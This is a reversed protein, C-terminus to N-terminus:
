DEKYEESLLKKHFDVQGELTGQKHKSLIKEVPDM